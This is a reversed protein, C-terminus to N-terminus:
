GEKIGGRNKKLTDYDLPAAKRAFIIRKASRVGIGPVRLLMEYDAKNVEVPFLNLNRLAWQSKPDLDLDLDPHADDLIEDASFRYFRMLWDAQYLRHERLLPPSSLAPLYPHQAVPVYASYYVRKLNFVKYLSESLKLIVRDSEPTAGVILQTTQGAPVFPKPSSRVILKNSEKQAAIQEKLFGM